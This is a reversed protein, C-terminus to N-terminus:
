MRRRTLSLVTGGVVLLVAGVLGFGLSPGGTDALEPRDGSGGDTSDAVDVTIEISDSGSENGDEDVEAVDELVDGDVVLDIIAGPM